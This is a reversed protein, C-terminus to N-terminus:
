NKRPSPELIMVRRRDMAQEMVAAPGSLQVLRRAPDEHTVTLGAADAFARIAKCDEAHDEARNSALAARSTFPAPAASPAATGDRPKLYLSVPIQEDGPVRETARMGHPAERQSGSIEHLPQTMTADKL